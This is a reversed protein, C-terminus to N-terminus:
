LVEWSGDVNKMNKLRNQWTLSSSWHATRQNHSEFPPEKSHLITKRTSRLKWKPDSSISWIYKPRVSDNDCRRSRERKYEGFSLSTTWVEEIHSLVMIQGWVVINSQCYESHFLVEEIYCWETTTTEIWLLWENEKGRLTYWSLYYLKHAAMFDKLNYNLIGFFIMITVM